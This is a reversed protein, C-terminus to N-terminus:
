LVAVAAQVVSSGQVRRFCVWSHKCERAAICFADNCADYCHSASSQRSHPCPPDVRKRSEGDTANSNLGGAIYISGNLLAGMAQARGEPMAAMATYTQLIPDYLYNTDMVTDDDSNHGGMIYM